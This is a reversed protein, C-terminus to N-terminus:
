RPPMHYGMSPILCACGRQCLTQRGYDATKRTMSTIAPDRLVENVQMLGGIRDIMCTAASNSSNRIMAHLDAGAEPTAELKRQGFHDSAALLIAIKPLVRKYMEKPWECPADFRPQPDFIRHDAAMKGSKTDTKAVAPAHLFAAAGAAKYIETETHKTLPLWDSQYLSRAAAATKRQQRNCDASFSALDSLM